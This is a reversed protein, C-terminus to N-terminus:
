AATPAPSVGPYAAREVATLAPEVARGERASAVAAELVAMVAVAQDPTAADSGPRGLIANRVGTYSRQQAGTPAPVREINGEVDHLLIPDPDVGWGEAGPLLGARLQAEQQDPLEKVASGRTGHVAFRPSGGAVLMSAQLVVRRGPYQLVCHAWDEVPAGPRLVALDADVRDPVGFLLLAQDVLHPGLDFWIGGGPVAAERWRDRVTPRFRDIRSELHVVDGLRGSRVLEAIGLFDSDFRRNQFVRLVRGTEAALDRLERAEALSLTFPKDVVVHRGARLATRALPAHQDNPAAIVVLDVDHCALLADVDPVVVVDPLDAHVADPRSSVVHTLALGETAHLLPVHFTKGAFGYGILATRIPADTPSM